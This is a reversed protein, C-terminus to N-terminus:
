KYQALGKCERSEVYDDYTKDYIEEFDMNLIGRPYKTTNDPLDFISVRPYNDTLFKFSYRHNNTRKMTRDNIMFVHSRAIKTFNMVEQLSTAYFQDDDIELLYRIKKMKQKSYCGLPRGIPNKHSEFENFYEQMIEM